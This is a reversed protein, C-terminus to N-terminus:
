VFRAVAPLRDEGSLTQDAHQVAQSHSDGSRVNADLVNSGHHDRSREGRKRPGTAAHIHRHRRNTIRAAQLAADKYLSRQFGRITLDVGDSLTRYCNSTKGRSVRLVADLQLM